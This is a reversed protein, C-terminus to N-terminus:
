RRGTSAMYGSFHWIPFTLADGTWTGVVDAPLLESVVAVGTESDIMSADTFYAGSLKHEWGPPIKAHHLNTHGLRQVFTLPALFQTGHPEFEYAVTAGPWATVSIRMSEGLFAGRPIVLSFDTGPVSIVGGKWKIVKSVTVPASLPRERLLGQTLYSEPLQASRASAKAVAQEIEPSLDRNATVPASPAAADSCAAIIATIIAVAVTALKRSRSVRLDKKMSQGRFEVITPHPM